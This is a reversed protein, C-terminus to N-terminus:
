SSRPNPRRRHPASSRPLGHFPCRNAWLLRLVRGSDPRHGHHTPGTPRRPTQTLTGGLKTARTHLNALGRTRTRTRTRTPDIGRGNDTVLLRLHTVTAAATVDVTTAHAHRATDTLAETIVALLQDAIDNAVLTSCGPRRFHHM